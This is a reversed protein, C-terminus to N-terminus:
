PPFFVAPVRVLPHSVFARGEKVVGGGGSMGERALPDLRPRGFLAALQVLWLQRIGGGWGAPSLEHLDILPPDQAHPFLSSSPKNKAKSPSDLGGLHQAPGGGGPHPSTPRLSPRTCSTVQKLIDGRRQNSGCVQWCALPGSATGSGPKQTPTRSSRAWRIM